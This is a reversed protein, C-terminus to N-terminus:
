RHWSLKCLSAFRYETLCALLANLLDVAILNSCWSTFPFLKLLSHLAFFAILLQVFFKLVRWVLGIESHVFLRLIGRQSKKVVAAFV